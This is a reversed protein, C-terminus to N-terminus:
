NINIELIAFMAMRMLEIGARNQSPKVAGARRKLIITGAVAKEINGYLHM